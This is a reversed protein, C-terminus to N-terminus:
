TLSTPYQRSIDDRKWCATQTCFVFSIFFAFICIYFMHHSKRFCPVSLREFTHVVFTKRDSFQLRIYLYVILFPYYNYPYYNYVSLSIRCWAIYHLPLKTKRDM